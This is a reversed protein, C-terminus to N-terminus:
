VRRRCCAQQGDGHQSLGVTGKGALASGHLLLVMEAIADEGSDLFAFDGVAVDERQRDEDADVAVDAGGVIGAM